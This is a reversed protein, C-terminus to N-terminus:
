AAEDIQDVLGLLRASLPASLPAFLPAFLPAYLHLAVKLTGSQVWISRQLVNKRRELLFGSYKHTTV